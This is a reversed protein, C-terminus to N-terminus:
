IGLAAEDHKMRALRWQQQLAALSPAQAPHNPQALSLGSLEQYTADNVHPSVWVTRTEPDVALLGM